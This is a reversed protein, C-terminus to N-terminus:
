PGAFVGRERHTRLRRGGGPGARGIWGVKGECRWIDGRGVKGTTSPRAVLSAGALPRIMILGRRSMGVGEDARAVREASRGRSMRVVGGGGM